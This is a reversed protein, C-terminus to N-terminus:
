VPHTVHVALRYSPAPKPLNEVDPIQWAEWDWSRTLRKPALGIRVRFGLQLIALRCRRFIEPLSGWDAQVFSGSGIKPLSANEVITRHSASIAMWTDPLPWNARLTIHIIQNEGALVPRCSLDSVM